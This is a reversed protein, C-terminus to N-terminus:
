TAEGRAAGSAVRRGTAKAEMHRLVVDATLSPAPRGPAGTDPWVM